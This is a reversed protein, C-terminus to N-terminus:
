LKLYLELCKPCDGNAEVWEPRDRRIKRIVWDEAMVHLDATDPHLFDGCVPCRIAAHPTADKHTRRRMRRTTPEERM